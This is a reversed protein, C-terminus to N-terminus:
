GLVVLTEGIEVTAGIAAVVRQVTGARPARLENQMKMAEVVLLPQGAEVTDGVAVVVAAIRGPIIARIDLPAGSALADTRDRSARDRLTAREEDDVDLVFRWGDVVVEVRQRGHRDPRRVPTVVVAADRGTEGGPDVVVATDDPHATEPTPSVRVLRSVDTTAGRGGRTRGDAM